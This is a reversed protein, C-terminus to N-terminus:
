PRRSVGTNDIRPDIELLQHLNSNLEMFYSIICDLNELADRITSESNKILEEYENSAEDMAKEAYYDLQEDYAEMGYDNVIKRCAEDSVDYRALDKLDEFLSSITEYFSEYTSKYEEFLTKLTGVPEPLEDLEWYEDIIDDIVNLADEFKSFFRMFGQLFKVTIGSDATRYVWKEEFNTDYDSWPIFAADFLHQRALECVPILSDLNAIAVAFNYKYYPVSNKQIDPFLSDKLYNILKKDTSITGCELNNSSEDSFNSSGWYVINETMIIKAHNHFTFYPNLRMKYNQPDLQRLYSDIMDKAAVAYRQTYYLPFRKPINTIVVANAGNECAVKLANLLRSNSKSSINYTMIGIFKANKFDDLVRQYTFENQGFVAQSESTTINEM